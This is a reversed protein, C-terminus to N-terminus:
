FHFFLLTCDINRNKHSMFLRGIRVYKNQSSLLDLYEVLYFRGGFFDHYSYGYMLIFSNM